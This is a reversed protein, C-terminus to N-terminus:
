RPAGNTTPAPGGGSGFGSSGLNPNKKVYLYVARDRSSAVPATCAIRFQDGDTQFEIVNGKATGALLYRTDGRPDLTLSYEGRGRLQVFVRGGSAESVGGSDLAFVGNLYLRPHTLTIVDQGDLKPLFLPQGTLEYRDYVRVSGSAYLDVEFTSGPGVDISPTPRALPAVPGQEKLVSADLPLVTFRYQGAGLPEANWTYGFHARTSRDFMYVSGTLKGGRWRWGTSLGDKYSWGFKALFPHVIRTRRMHTGTDWPGVDSGITGDRVLSAGLVLAGAVAALSLIRRLRVGLLRLPPKAPFRSRLRARMSAPAEPAKWTNLMNDLETDNM